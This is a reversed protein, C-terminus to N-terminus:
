MKAKRKKILIVTIIASAAIVVSSIVGVIIWIPSTENETENINGITADSPIDNTQIELDLEKAATFFTSFSSTYFSVSAISGDEYTGYEAQGLPEIKGDEAVHYVFLDTGGDLTGKEISVTVRIPFGIEQHGEFYLPYIRGDPWSEYGNKSAIANLLEDTEPTSRGPDASSVITQVNTLIQVLEEKQLGAYYQQEEETMKGMEVRVSNVPKVSSEPNQVPIPIDFDSNRDDPMPFSPELSQSEGSSGTDLNVNEENFELILKVNFPVVADAPTHRGVAVESDALELETKFDGSGVLYAHFRVGESLGSIKINEYYKLDLVGSVSSGNRLVTVTQGNFEWTGGGIDVYWIFDRGTNPDRPINAGSNSYSGVKNGGSSSQENGSQGSSNSSGDSGYTTSKGTTRDWILDGKVPKNQVGDNEGPWFNTLMYGAGMCYHCKWNINRSAKCNENQCEVKGSGNCRTCQNYGKGHCTWCELKGTGNCTGCTGPKADPPIDGDGSRIYTDGKCSPCTYYGHDCPGKGEEGMCVSGGKGHCGDCTIQVRNDCNPCHFQGTSNCHYCPELDKAYTTIAFISCLLALVLGATIIRIGKAM